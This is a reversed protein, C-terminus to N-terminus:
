KSTGGFGLHKCVPCDPQDCTWWESGQTATKAAVIANHLAVAAQKDQARSITNVNALFVAGARTNFFDVM